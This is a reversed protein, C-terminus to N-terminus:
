FYALAIYPKCHQHCTSEERPDSKPYQNKFAESITYSTFSCKKSLALAMKSTCIYLYSIFALTIKPSYQTRTVLSALINTSPRM